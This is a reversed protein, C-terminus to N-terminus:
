TGMERFEWFYRRRNGYEVKRGNPIYITVDHSVGSFCDSGPAPPVTNYSYINKLAKCDKFADADISEVNAGLSIETIDDCYAFSARGISTVSQPLSVVGEYDSPVFLVEALTKDYIIGAEDETYGEQANYSIAYGSPFPNEIFDPYLSKELSNCGYFAYMGIKKVNKPIVVSTLGRCGYFACIGISTVTEPINLQKIEEGNIYLNHTYRLPNSYENEFKITCLSEVSAFQSKILNVCDYFANYGITTVSEPITISTLGSCGYFAGSGITTLSEPLTISIM